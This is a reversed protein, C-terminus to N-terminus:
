QYLMESDEPNDLDFRILSCVGRESAGQFALTEGIKDKWCGTLRTSEHVHGHLSLHFRYKQLLRQIAISGIHVDLPVHDIFKGDLAARDLKTQYPPSHMLIVTMDKNLGEMMEELDDKITSYQAEYDSIPISRYGEDPPICGVDVFRSVDFKEWDKNQFPTPPVFGYGLITYEKFRVIKKNVYNLLGSTSIDLFSSEK